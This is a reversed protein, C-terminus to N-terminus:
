SGIRGILDPAQREFERAQADVVAEVEEDTLHGSGEVFSLVKACYIPAM